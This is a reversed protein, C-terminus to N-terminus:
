SGRRVDVKARWDVLTLGGLRGLYTVSVFIWTWVRTWAAVSPYCTWNNLVSIACGVIGTGTELDNTQYLIKLSLLGAIFDGRLDGFYQHTM